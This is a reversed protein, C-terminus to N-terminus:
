MISSSYRLRWGELCRAGEEVAYSLGHYGAYRSTSITTHPIDRPHPDGLWLAYLNQKYCFSQQNVQSSYQSVMVELLAKFCDWTETSQQYDKENRTRAPWCQIQSTQMAQKDSVYGLIYWPESNGLINSLPWPSHLSIFLLYWLIHRCM